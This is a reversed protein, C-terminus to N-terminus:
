ECYYYISLDDKVVFAWSIYDTCWEDKYFGNMEYWGGIIHHLTPGCVAFLANQEKADKYLVQGDERKVSTDFRPAGYCVKERIYYLKARRVKGRRIVTISELIPSHLPWTKEVGCGNSNKRVTFTEHVGGNQRKVVVGEFAQTRERNGEKVKSLVRVTDGVAFSDVTEKMNEKALSAMYEMDTM